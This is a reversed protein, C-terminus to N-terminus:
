WEIIVFGPSGDGGNGGVGTPGYSGGGGGGGSGYGASGRGPAGTGGGARGAGGGGGFPSSSGMGGNGTPQNSTSDGGDSGNPFGQGGVGGGGNNAGGAGNGGGTLTILSGIVTSGGLSGAAGPNSGYAGTGGTGAAGITIPIVQGPTVAFEQRQISQGAAGGGAGAGSTPIGANSGGGGGGGGGGATASMFIKYIFDPVTFSGSSTFRQVNLLRGSNPNIALSNPASYILTKRSDKVTISYAVSIFLNAPTGARVPYGGSTRIPQAAPQTGAADWYVTVPATEPNQDPLGIFIYGAELPDGQRDTFVPFLTEIPTM